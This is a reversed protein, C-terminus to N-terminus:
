IINKKCKKYLDHFDDFVQKKIQKGGPLVSKSVGPIPIPPPSIRIVIQEM